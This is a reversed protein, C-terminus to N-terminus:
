LVGRKHVVATVLCLSVGVILASWLVGIKAVKKVEDSDPRGVLVALDFAKVVFVEGSQSGPISSDATYTATSAVGGTAEDLQFHFVTSTSCGLTYIQPWPKICSFSFLGHPVWWADVHSAGAVRKPPRAVLGLFGRYAHPISLDYQRDITLVVCGNGSPMTGTMVTQTRM